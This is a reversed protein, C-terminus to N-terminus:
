FGATKFIKEVDEEVVKGTTRAFEVGEENLFILTPAVCVNYRDVMAVDEMADICEVEVGSNSLIKEVEPYKLCTKTYFKLIKM